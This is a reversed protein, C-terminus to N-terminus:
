SIMAMRGMAASMVFNAESSNVNVQLAKQAYSRATRYFDRQKEKTPQRKGLINYLESVKCLAPLNTPQQRLVEVYKLLAENEKFSSELQQAEKLIPTVDQASNEFPLILLLLISWLISVKKIM